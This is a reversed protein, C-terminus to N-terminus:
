ETLAITGSKQLEALLEESSAKLAELESKLTAIEAKLAKNEDAAADAAGEKGADEKGAKDAEDKEMKILEDVGAQLKTLADMVAKMGDDAGGAPAGADGEAKKKSENAMKERWSKFGVVLSNQQMPVACLTIELLEVDTYRLVEADEDYEVVHPLFGVSNGKLIGQCLLSRVKIQEKTLPAYQPRGVSAVYHLGDEKPTVETAIGVLEKYDHEYLIVPNKKYNDLRWASPDITEQGRDAEIENAIGEIVLEENEVLERGVGATIEKDEKAGAKQRVKISVPLRRTKGETMIEDFMVKVHAPLNKDTSKFIM